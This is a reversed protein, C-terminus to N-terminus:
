PKYDPLKSGGIVSGAGQDDIKETINRLARTTERLDRIAAEAAPLT